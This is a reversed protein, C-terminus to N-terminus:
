NYYVFECIFNTIDKYIYKNLINYIKNKNKQTDIKLNNDLVYDDYLFYNKYLLEFRNTRKFGSYCIFSNDNNIFITNLNELIFELNLNPNLCIRNYDWPLNPNQKIMEMTISSNVTINPWYWNKYIYKEIFEITLNPNLSIYTWNWPLNPNDEIDILKIAPNKSLSTWSFNENINELVFKMNINPNESVYIFSIENIFKNILELTFYKNESLNYWEINWGYYLLHQFTLNPNESIMGNFDWYTKKDNNHYESNNNHYDSDNNHYKDMHYDSYDSNDIIDKITIGSNSSLWQWNLYNNENTLIYNIDISINRSAFEQWEIEDHLNLNKMKELSINPNSLIEAEKYINKKFFKKFGENLNEDSIFYNIIKELENGKHKRYLKKDKIDNEIYKDILKIDNETINNYKSIIKHM